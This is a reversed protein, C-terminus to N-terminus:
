KAQEELKTVQLRLWGVIVRKTDLPTTPMRDGTPVLQKVTAEDILDAIDDLAHAIIAARLAPYLLLGADDLALVRDVGRDQAVKLVRRTQEMVQESPRMQAM